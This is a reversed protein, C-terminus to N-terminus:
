MGWYQIPRRLLPPQDALFKLHSSWLRGAGPTLAETYLLQPMFFCGPLASTCSGSLAAPLSVHATAFQVSRTVVGTL